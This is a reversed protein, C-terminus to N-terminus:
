KLVQALKAELDEGRLNKGIIMGNPDILMNAPISEIHYLRSAANNWSQLDSVQTWPLNDMKIAQLWAAKNDDLSVGLITFNKGKYKNYAAVVNPNERRCPGCWSAWFDVLVYKGKFSSLSVPKGNVDNQTFDIAKTGVVGIKGTEIVTQVNKTLGSKLADGSLTNFRKELLLVDRNPDSDYTYALALVSAPSTKKMIIFREITNQYINYATNLMLMASDREMVNRAGQMLNRYYAVYDGIPKVFALFEEYDRNYEAGKVSVDSWDAKTANLSINENGMFLIMRRNVSPFFVARADIDSLQGKLAFANNEVKAVALTDTESKGALYVVNGNTLGPLSGQITFNQAKSLVPLVCLLFLFKKM